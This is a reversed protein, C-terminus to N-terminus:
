VISLIQMYLSTKKKYGRITGKLPSVAYAKPSFKTLFTQIQPTDKNLLTFDKM